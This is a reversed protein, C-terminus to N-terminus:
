NHTELLTGRNTDSLREVVFLIGRQDLFTLTTDSPVRPDRAATKLREDEDGDEEEEYRGIKNRHLIASSHLRLGGRLLCFADQM